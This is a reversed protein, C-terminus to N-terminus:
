KTDFAHYNQKLYISSLKVTPFRIINIKNIYHGLLLSINSNHTPSLYKPFGFFKFKTVMKYNMLDSSLVKKLLSKFTDSM